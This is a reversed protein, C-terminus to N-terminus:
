FLTLQPDSHNKKIAKQSTWLSEIIKNSKDNFSSLEKAIRNINEMKSLNTLLQGMLIVRVDNRSLFRGSLNLRNIQYKTAELIEEVMANTVKTQPQLRPKKRCVIIIDLNIPEKAQQKPSAVSMESKVPHTIVIYFGAKIVAELVSSWGEPKSHHYTFVLLGEPRLVRFCEVFVSTLKETFVSVDTQQVEETTRTSIGKFAGKASLIHREWVYFFDALQSYHVNDFFPPDTVVLDVREDGIDTIASNGCSLYLSSMNTSFEQFTKAIHGGMPASLNFVKKASPKRHVQSIHLEFPNERYDLCRLLRTEFLTSFAGSSKPTGWINAELPMREPKLIHHSFMHRVAGTGEGKFSTFMNNFELIGSFLCTFLLRIPNNEIKQIREALMSLCLLQRSNFMQHWKSYRYNLVQNTNYGPKISVNPYANKRQALAMEAKEYLTRDFENISLYEKNGDPRLVMKAYMRHAPPKDLQQVRKAIQFTNNCTPCTAKTGKAPGSQPDFIISCNHCQVRTSHYLTNNITNCNPCVARAVPHKAPYAHASFIYKTFIDVPTECNPCPLTKVWFYYLVDCLIGNELKAKYFNCIKKGVDRKIEHFTKIVDPRNYTGLANYVSFYSVPNIDRGIARCGLKNAEGITTGSGMFPDFVVMDRLRVPQYFMERIDSGKPACAGLLIARFVSGLRQAWWKHIHYVPRSIEKRWSELEAVDSLWEIPFGDEIAREGGVAVLTRGYAVQSEAVSDVLAMRLRRATRKPEIEISRHWSPPIKHALLMLEDLDHRFYDAVKKILTESPPVKGAEVRSLYARDIHFTTALTKLSIGHKLRIQKLQEGFRM